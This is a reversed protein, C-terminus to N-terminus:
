SRWDHGYTAAIRRFAERDIDYGVSPPKIYKDNRLSVHGEATASRAIEELDSWYQIAAQSYKQHSSRSLGFCTTFTEGDVYFIAYPDFRVGWCLERGFYGPRKPQWVMEFRQLIM